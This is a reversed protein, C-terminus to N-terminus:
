DNDDGLREGQNGGVGDRVEEQVLRGGLAMRRHGPHLSEFPHEVNVDLGALPAGPLDLDDDLRRVAANFIRSDDLSDEGVQVISSRGGPRGQEWLVTPRRLSSEEVSDPFPESM